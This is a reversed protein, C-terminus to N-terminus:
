SSNPIESDPGYIEREWCWNVIRAVGQGLHRRYTSFPLGLRAAAAEQTTTRRLYTQEVARYQKDDRADQTL